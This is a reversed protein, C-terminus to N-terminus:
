HETGPTVRCAAGNPSSAVHLREQRCGLRLAAGRHALGKRLGDGLQRLVGRLGPRGLQEGVDGLHVLM